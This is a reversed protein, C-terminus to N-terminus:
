RNAQDESSTTLTKAIEDVRDAIHKLLSVVYIIVAIQVIAIVLGIM